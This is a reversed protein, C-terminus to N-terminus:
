AQRHEGTTVIIRIGDCRENFVFAYPSTNRTYAEVHNAVGLVFLKLVCLTRHDLHMAPKSREARSNINLGRM